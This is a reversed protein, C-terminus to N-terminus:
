DYPDWSAAGAEDEKRKHACLACLPVKHTKKAPSGGRKIKAARVNCASCMVVGEMTPPREAVGYRYQGEPGVRILHGADHLRKLVNCMRGFHQKSKNPALGDQVLIAYLAVSTQAGRERLVGLLSQPDVHACDHQAPPAPETCAQPATGTIDAPTAPLGILVERCGGKNTTEEM